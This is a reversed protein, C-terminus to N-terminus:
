VMAVDSIYNRYLVMDLIYCRHSSIIHKRIIGYRSYPM